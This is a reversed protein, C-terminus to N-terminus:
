KVEDGNIKGNWCIVKLTGTFRIYEDTGAFAQQMQNGPNNEATIMNTKPAIGGGSTQPVGMNRQRAMAAMQM